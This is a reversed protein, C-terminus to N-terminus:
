PTQEQEAKQFERTVPEGDVKIEEGEKKEESKAPQETPQIENEEIEIAPTAPKIDKPQPKSGKSGTPAPKLKIKNEPAGRTAPEDEEKLERIPEVFNSQNTQGAKRISTLTGNAM